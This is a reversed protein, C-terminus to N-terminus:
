ATRLWMYVLYAPPQVINSRGYIGNSSAANFEMGYIAAGSAKAHGTYPVMGVTASLAGSYGPLGVSDNKLHLPGISGTINPLGSDITTGATQGSGVGMLCRGAGISM